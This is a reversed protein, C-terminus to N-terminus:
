LLELEDLRVFGAGSALHATRTDDYTLDIDVSRGSDLYVVIPGTCDRREYVAVGQVKYRVSPLVIPPPPPALTARWAYFAPDSFGEPDSKRWKSRDSTTTPGPIAIRRHTEISETSIHYRQMLDRVLWDLAAHQAETWQEGVSIHCEVGISHANTFAAVAEGAQWAALDPPLIQAIQGIKGVLFHASVDLSKQLYRAETAFETAAKNSTTHIVISSPKVGLARMGFGQGVHLMTDKRFTTVDILPLM